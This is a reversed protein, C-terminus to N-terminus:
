VMGEVELRVVQTEGQAWVGQAVVRALAVWIVLAWMRRGM